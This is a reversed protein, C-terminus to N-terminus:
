LWGKRYAAYIEGSEPISSFSFLLKNKGKKLEIEPCSNLGEELSYKVGDFQVAADGAPVSIILPSNREGSEVELVMLNTKGNVFVNIGNSIKIRWITSPDFGIDILEAMIITLEYTGYTVSYAVELGNGDVFSIDTTQSESAKEWTLLLESFDTFDYTPIAQTGYRLDTDWSNKSVNIGNTIEIVSIVPIDEVVSDSATGRFFVSAETLKNEWKFPELDITFKIKFSHNDIAVLEGVSVFGTYYYEPETDFIIDLTEGNVSNVIDHYIAQWSDRPADGKFTLKATRNGYTVRGTLSKTLDHQGDAGPIAVTYRNEPAPSITWGRLLYLGWDTLSHYNGIKVGYHM